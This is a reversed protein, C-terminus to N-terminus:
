MGDDMGDDMGDNDAGDDDMGDDPIEIEQNINKEYEISNDFPTYPKSFDGAERMGIDFTQGVGEKRNGKSLIHEELEKIFKSNDTVKNGKSTINEDIEKLIDDNSM